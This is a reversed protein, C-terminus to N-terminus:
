AIKAYMNPGEEIPIMKSAPLPPIESDTNRAQYYVYM